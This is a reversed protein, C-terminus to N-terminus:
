SKPNLSGWFKTTQIDAGGPIAMGNLFQVHGDAFGVNAGSGHRFQDSAAPFDNNGERGVFDGRMDICPTKNNGLGRNIDAIAFLASPYRVKSINQLQSFGLRTVPDYTCNIGYHQGGGEGSNGHKLAVSSPCAFPAYPFGPETTAQKWVGWAKVETGSDYAYLIDTWFVYGGAHSPPISGGYNDIYMTMTLMIQKQNSTCSVTRAKERAKNLAPLLMSALIAIIAIVILLEILTFYFHRMSNKLAPKSLNHHKM